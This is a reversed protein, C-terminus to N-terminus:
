AVDGVTSKMCFGANPTFILEFVNVTMNPVNIYVEYNVRFYVKKPVCFQILYGHELDMFGMKQKQEERLTETEKRRKFKQALYYM